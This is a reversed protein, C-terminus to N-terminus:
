QPLEITEKLYFFVDDDSFLSFGEPPSPPTLSFHNYFNFKSHIYLYISDPPATRKLELPKAEKTSLSWLTRTKPLKPCKPTYYCLAHFRLTM